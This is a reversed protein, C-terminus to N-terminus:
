FGSKDAKKYSMKGDQWQIVMTMGCHTCKINQAHHDIKPLPAGCSACPTPIIESEGVEWPIHTIHEDGLEIQMPVQLHYSIKEVIKAAASGVFIIQEGSNFNLRVRKETESYNGFSISKINQVKYKYRRPIWFIAPTRTTVTITKEEKDIFCDYAEDSGFFLSMAEWGLILIAIIAIYKGIGNALTAILFLAVALYIFGKFSNVFFGVYGDFGDAKVIIKNGKEEINM